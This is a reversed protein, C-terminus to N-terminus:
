SVIGGNPGQPNFALIFHLDETDGHADYFSPSTLHISQKIDSILSIEPMYTVACLHAPPHVYPRARLAMSMEYPEQFHQVLVSM